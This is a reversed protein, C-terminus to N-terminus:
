EAKFNSNWKSWNVQNYPRGRNLQAFWFDMGASYFTFSVMSVGVILASYVANSRIMLKYFSSPNSTSSFVRKTTVANMMKKLTFPHLVKLPLL